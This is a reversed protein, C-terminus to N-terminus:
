VIERILWAKGFYLGFKQNGAHYLLDFVHSLLIDHMTVHARLVLDEIFLAVQLQVVEFMHPFHFIPLIDHLKLLAVLLPALLTNQQLWILRVLPRGVSLVLSGFDDEGVVDRHRGVDPRHAHYGVLAKRPLQWEFSLGFGFEEM